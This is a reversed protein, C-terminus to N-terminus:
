IPAPASPLLLSVQSLAVEKQCNLANYLQQVSGQQHGQKARSMLAQVHSSAQTLQEAILWDAELRHYCLIQCAQARALSCAELTISLVCPVLHCHSDKNTLRLVTMAHVQVGDALQLSQQQLAPLRELVSAVLEEIAPDVDESAYMAEDEDLFDRKGNFFLLAEARARDDQM